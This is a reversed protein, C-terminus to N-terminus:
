LIQLIIAYKAQRQWNTARRATQSAIKVVLEQRRFEKVKEVAAIADAYREFKVFAVGKKGEQPNMLTVDLVIGRGYVRMGLHCIVFLSIPPPPTIMKGIKLHLGIAAEGGKSHRHIVNVDFDFHQDKSVVKLWKCFFGQEKGASSQLFILCNLKLRKSHLKRSSVFRLDHLVWWNAETWSSNSFVSRMSM